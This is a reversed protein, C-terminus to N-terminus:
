MGNDLCVNDRRRITDGDHDSLEQVVAWQLQGTTQGTTGADKLTVSVWQANRFVINTTGPIFHDDTVAVSTLAGTYLQRVADSRSRM